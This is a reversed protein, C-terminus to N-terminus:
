LYNGKMWENIMRHAAARKDQPAMHGAGHLTVFDLGEMNWQYGAVETNGPVFWMRWPKVISKYMKSTKIWEITGVTGVVSDLDGSYKLM